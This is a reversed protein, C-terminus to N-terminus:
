SSMACSLKLREFDEQSKIVSKPPIYTGAPIRVNDGIRSRKGIYSKSDIFVNEGIVSFHDIAVDYCILSNRGIKVKMGISCGGQIEVNDELCVGAGIKTLHGIMGNRGIRIQDVYIKGNNMPINTGITAKNSLYVDKGISLLPLDRIWTDPYIQFDSVSKM